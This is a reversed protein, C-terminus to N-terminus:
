KEAAGPKSRLARWSGVVLTLVTLPIAFGLMIGAFSRTLNANTAAMLLYSTYALYYALFLVGEWRAIMHGTFFIPLCAVAVAIMVPIDFRLAASEVPIGSPSFSSALGLVALINFLNSGIANGVAIDRQGRLGAMLSTVIEPMSTGIAVITLGIVLESVKFLRALDVAGSVLWKAGVILLALGLGIIALQKIIHWRGRRIPPVIEEFERQVRKPEARSNRITWFVYTALISVLIVGDIVGLVHDWGLVLMLFSAGIMLPVDLRILQSAVFLPSVTASLGLILLVNAINSGVVNGMAINGQGEAASQISVALEPASTGFAVVTLGIVLPSVRAAAAVASAGRVLLEGGGILVALGAVIWFAASFHTMNSNAFALISWRRNSGM